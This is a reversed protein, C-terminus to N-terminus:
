VFCYSLLPPSEVLVKWDGRKEANYGTKQGRAELGNKEKGGRIKRWSAAAVAAAVVAAAAIWWGGVRVASSFLLADKLASKDFLDDWGSPPLLSLPFLAFSSRRGRDEGERKRGYFSCQTLAAFIWHACGGLFLLTCIKPFPSIAWVKGKEFKDAFFYNFYTEYKKKSLLFFWRAAFDSEKTEGQMDNEKEGQIETNQVSTSTAMSALPSLCVSFRFCPQWSVNQGWSYNPLFYTSDCFQVIFCICSCTLSQCYWAHCNTQNWMVCLKLLGKPCLPLGTRWEFVPHCLTPPVPLLVHLSPPPLFPPPPISRTVGM